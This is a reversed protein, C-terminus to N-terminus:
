LLYPYSWDIIYKWGYFDYLKLIEINMKLLM